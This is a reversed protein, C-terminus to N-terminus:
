AELFLMELVQERVRPEQASLSESNLLSRPPPPPHREGSVQLLGLYVNWVLPVVRRTLPLWYAQRSM